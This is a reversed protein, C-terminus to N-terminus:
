KVSHLVKRPSAAVGALMLRQGLTLEGPPGDPWWEALASLGPEILPWGCFLREIQERNRFEGSQLDGGLLVAETEAAREALSSDDGPNYFHSIAVHSGNPMADLYTQAVDFVRDGLIHHLVGVHLLGIPRSWDLYTRVEDRKLLEEPRSIDGDLMESNSSSLIARGEAIVVPDNDVYLV